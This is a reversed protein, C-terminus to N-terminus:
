LEDGDNSLVGERIKRCIEKSYEDYSTYAREITGDKTIRHVPASAGNDLFLGFSIRDEAEAKQSIQQVYHEVAVVRTPNNVLLEFARGFNVVLFGEKPAVSYWSGRIRAQLGEEDIYLLSLHGTDKHPTLGIMQKEPRYHNFSFFFEGTREFVGPVATSWLEQSLQPLVLPFLRELLLVGQDIFCDILEHMEANYIAHWYERRCILHEGQCSVIDYYGSPEQFPFSKLQDNHYWSYAFRHATALREKIAPSFELYFIGDQAATLLTETLLPSNEHLEKQNISVLQAEQRAGHVAEQEQAQAYCMTFVVLGYLILYVALIPKM